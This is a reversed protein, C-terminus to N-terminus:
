EAEAVDQDERLRLLSVVLDITEQSPPRCHILDTLTEWEEATTVLAEKSGCGNRTFIDALKRAKRERNLVEYPNEAVYTMTM